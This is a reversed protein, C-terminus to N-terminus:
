CDTEIYMCDTFLNSSRSYLLAPLASDCVRVLHILRQSTFARAGRPDASEGPACQLVSKLVFKLACAQLVVVDCRVAGCAKRQGVIGAVGVMWCCGAFVAQLRGLLLVGVKGTEICVGRKVKGEYGTGLTSLVSYSHAASRVVRPAAVGGGADAM